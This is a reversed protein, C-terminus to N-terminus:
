KRVITRRDSAGTAPGSAELHDQRHRLLVTGPNVSQCSTGLIARFAVPMPFSPRSARTGLTRCITMRGTITDLLGDCGPGAAGVEQPVGDNDKAM